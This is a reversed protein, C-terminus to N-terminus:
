NIPPTMVSMDKLRRVFESFEVINIPKYMIYDAQQDIDSTAMHANATVVVIHMKQHLPKDRVAKLVVSGDVVPMQLDLILLNYTKNELLAMGQTGSETEEVDYGATELAIRFIDRNFWNDDVILASYVPQANAADM